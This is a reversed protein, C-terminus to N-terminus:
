QTRMIIHLAKWAERLVYHVYDAWNLDSRIIKGLYKFSSAEPILQDV